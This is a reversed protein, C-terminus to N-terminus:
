AQNKNPTMESFVSDAIQLGRRTLKIEESTLILLGDQELRLFKQEYQELQDQAFRTSLDSKKIGATKRLGLFLYEFLSDAQELQEMWEIACEDNQWKKIYTLSDRCNMWRRATTLKGNYFSAEYSHAGAGIGIYDLGSWYGINHQSHYGSKSFNSIEYHEFGDQKLLNITDEFLKAALDNEVVLTSDKKVKEYLPTGPELTLTYVSIHEPKIECAKKIENQLDRSSQNPLASIMDISINLFGALRAQNFANLSDAANHARGLLKLNSAKFSQIGLSLRNVGLEYFRALKEFNVTGPNAEITIELDAKINFNDSIARLITGISNSRFISPTGGGLYISRIKRSKWSTKKSYFALEQCVAKIYDDELSQNFVQSNFDCYTCKSLCFPIHIYLLFEQSLESM